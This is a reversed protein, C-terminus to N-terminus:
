ALLTPCTCRSVCAPLLVVAPLFHLFVSFSSVASAATILLIVACQHLGQPKRAAPDYGAGMASRALPTSRWGVGGALMM